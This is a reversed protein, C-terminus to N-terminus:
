ELSVEPTPTHSNKIAPTRSKTRKAGRILDELEPDNQRKWEVMETFGQRPKFWAPAREPYVYYCDQLAHLMNCAPCKSAPTDEEETRRRKGATQQRQTRGGTPRQGQLRGRGGTHHPTDGRIPRPTGRKPPVSTANDTHFADGEAGPRAEGNVELTLHEGAAFAGSRKEVLTSHHREMNERFRKMMIKRTITPDRAGTEQFTRVWTGDVNKVAELFDTIVDQINVTESCKHTEAETAAQDYELLWNAWKRAHKLVGPRTVEKYRLRAQKREEEADFGVTHQLLTVWQRLTHEPKCCNRFLHCSVTSQIYQVIKDMGQQEERYVQQSLKYHELETKYYMNDMEWGRFGDVSLDTPATPIRNAVKRAYQTIDPKTPLTPKEMPQEESAPNIKAWINLSTARAELCQFWYPYSKYDTLIAASRELPLSM